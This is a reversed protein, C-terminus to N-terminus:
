VTAVLAQSGAVLIPRSFLLIILAGIAAYISEFMCVFCLAVSSLWTFTQLISINLIKQTFGQTIFLCLVFLDILFLILMINLLGHYVKYDVIFGSFPAFIIGSLSSM